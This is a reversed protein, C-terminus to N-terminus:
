DPKFRKHWDMIQKETVGFQLARDAVSEKYNGQHDAKLIELEDPKPRFIKRGVNSEDVALLFNIPHILPM